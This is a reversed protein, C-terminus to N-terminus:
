PTSFLCAYTLTSVPTSVMRPRKVRAAKVTQFVDLEGEAKVREVESMATIFVGTRAMGDSRSTPVFKVIMCYDYSM